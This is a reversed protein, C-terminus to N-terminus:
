LVVPRVRVTFGQARLQEARQSAFEASTHPLLDRSWADRWVGDVSMRGVRVEVLHRVDLMCRGDSLNRTNAHIMAAVGM